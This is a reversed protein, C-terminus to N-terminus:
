EGDPRRRRTGFSSVLRGVLTALFIQGLVAELVAVAQGLRGAATLDGYGTTTLTVFSFYQVAASGAPKASAFFPRSDFGAIAMFLAAFFFGILLYASLAGFVTQATVREHRLVRALVAVVTVLLVGALWVSVLGDVWPRRVAASVAATLLCGAGLSRRVRRAWRGTLLPPRLAVILVALYLLLGVPRAWREPLLASLLYGAILLVFLLVYRDRTEDAGARM